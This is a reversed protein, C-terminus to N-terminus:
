TNDTGSYLQELLIKYYDRIKHRRIKFSPTLMGNEITFPEPTLIFRRIKEIPSLRQNVREIVLKYIKLFDSNKFLEATNNPLGNKKTYELVFDPNPVLIAVVHPHRDGYVMAQTIEPELVLFGEVRAPAVNDGGSLVIIDKKRDTIKLYGDQDIHGIDGTHLWGGQLAHATAEPDQWYGNMVCEGQILIEGDEAIKITVGPLPPGVTDMKVKQPINVSIVPASETQGYGQLIPIGLSQFFIGVDYNLPAGGSVLAKLRGGFRARMKRRVLGDYFYNKLKDLITMSSPNEFSKRGMLITKKILRQKWPKEKTISRLIRQHMLEFFRPVATMITPQAERLNDGIKEVSEAYYIQAGILIPLCQGATHEYAHSLPLFSLFREKALGFTSLVQAAGECNALIAGHSLMVGKPTGGTGSTYILCCVDSRKLAKVREAVRPLSLPHDTKHLIDQWLFFHLLVQQDIAIPDIFIVTKLEPAQLAAPLFKAAIAQTSIIGIQAGSHRLIHLYDQTTHTTFAPVTIAGISMIAMDAILWEPRSEAVLMVRDGPKVSLNILGVALKQVQHAVQQWSLAVWDEKQKHWLFPQNSYKQANGFFMGPLSSWKEWM